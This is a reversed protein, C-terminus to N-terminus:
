LGLNRLGHKQEKTHVVITLISLKILAAGDVLFGSDAKGCGTEKIGKSDEVTFRKGVTGSLKELKVPHEIPAASM